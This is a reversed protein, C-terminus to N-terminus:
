RRRFRYFGTKRERNADRILTTLGAALMLLSVVYCAGWAFAFPEANNASQRGDLLYVAVPITFLGINGILRRVTTQFEEQLVSSHKIEHGLYAWTLVFVLCVTISCLAIVISVYALM